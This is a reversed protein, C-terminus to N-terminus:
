LLSNNNATYAPGPPRPQQSQPPQQPYGNFYPQQQQQLSYPAHNPPYGYHPQPQPPLATQSSQQSLLPNLPQQLHAPLSLPAPQQQQAYFPQPPPQSYVVGPPQAVPYYPPQPAYYPQQQHLPAFTPQSTFLSPVAPAGAPQAAVPSLYTGENGSNGGLASLKALKDSLLKTDTDTNTDSISVQMTQREARREDTLRQLRQVLQETCKALERYFQLGQKLNSKIGDYAVRADKLSQTINARAQTLKELEGLVDTKSLSEHDRELQKVLAHQEAITQQIKQRDDNFKQLEEKIVTETPKRAGLVLSESIDDRQLREKLESLLSKRTRRLQDLRSLCEEIQKIIVTADSKAASTIEIPLDLLNVTAASTNNKVAANKDLVVAMGGAIYHQNLRDPARLLDFQSQQASFKGGLTRDGEAGRDLDRQYNGLETQLAFLATAPPTQALRNGLKDKLIIM